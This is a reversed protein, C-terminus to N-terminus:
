CPPVATPHGAPTPNPPVMIGRCRNFNGSNAPDLRDGTTAGMGMGTTTGPSLTSRPFSTSSGTAPSGTISGSYTGGAGGRGAALAGTSSVAIATALVIMTLKMATTRGRQRSVPNAQYALCGRRPVPEARKAELLIEATMVWLQRTRAITGILFPQLLLM